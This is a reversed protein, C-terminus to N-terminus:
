KPKRVTVWSKPIKFVNWQEDNRYIEAKLKAMKRLMAPQCSWLLAHDELENWTITTEQEYRTRKM